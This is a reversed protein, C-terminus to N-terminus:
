AFWLTFWFPSWHAFETPKGLGLLLVFYAAQSGFLTMADRLWKPPPSPLLFSFRVLGVLRRFVSLVPVGPLSRLVFVFYM